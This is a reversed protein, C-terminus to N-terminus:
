CRLCLFCVCLLSAAPFGVHQLPLAGELQVWTRRGGAGAVGRAGVQARFATRTPHQLQACWPRTTMAVRGFEQAFPSPLGAPQSRGTPFTVPFHFSAGPGSRRSWRDSLVAHHRHGNNDPRPTSHVCWCAGYPFSADLGSGPLVCILRALPLLFHLFGKFICMPPRM